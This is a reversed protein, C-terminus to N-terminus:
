IVIGTFSTDAISSVQTASPQAQLEQVSNPSTPVPLQSSTVPASAQSSSLRDKLKQLEEMRRLKVYERAEECQLSEDPLTFLQMISQEEMIRAKKFTAAAMDATAKAQAWLANEKLKMSRQEEKSTKSGQPRKFSSEGINLTAPADPVIERQTSSDQDVNITRKLPTTRKGEDLPDAWHPIDKLLFWCHIFVFSQNKPHKSKYLELAKQLVDHSSTGSQCLAVAVKYNGIFKAVDHKIVGWKTELSRAPREGGGVPRNNNYHERVREWFATLRQGNRATPDQSVHLFSRCLQEEEEAVFNKGKRSKLVITDPEVVSAMEGAQM